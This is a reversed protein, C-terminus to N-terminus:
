RSMYQNTVEIIIEGIIYFLPINSTRDVFRQVPDQICFESEKSAYAPQGHPLPLGNGTREHGSLKAFHHRIM